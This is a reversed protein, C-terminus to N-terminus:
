TWSGVTKRWIDPAEIELIDDFDMEPLLFKEYEDMMLNEENIPFIKDDFIRDLTRSFDVYVKQKKKSSFCSGVILEKRNRIRKDVMSISRTSIYIHLNNEKHKSVLYTFVKNIKTQSQRCDWWGYTEDLFIALDKKSFYSEFDSLKFERCGELKPMIRNDFGGVVIEKGDLKEKNLFYLLATTLGSGARGEFITIM